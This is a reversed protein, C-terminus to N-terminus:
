LLRTFGSKTKVIVQDVIKKSLKAVDKYCESGLKLAAIDSIAIVEPQGRVVNILNRMAFKGHEIGVNVLNAAESLVHKIPVTIKKVIETSVRLCKILREQQSITTKNKVLGVVKESLKAADKYCELGLEFAAIDGIAVVGTQSIWLFVETKEKKQRLM